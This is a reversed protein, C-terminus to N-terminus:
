PRRRHAAARSARSRRHAASRSRPRPACARRAGPRPSAAAPRPRASRSPPCAGAAARAARRRALAATRVVARGEHGVLPMVDQVARDPGLGIQALEGGGDLRDRAHDLVAEEELVGVDDSSPAGSPESSRSTLGHVARPASRRHAPRDAGQHRARARSSRRVGPVGDVDDFTAAVAFSANGERLGLDSGVALSRVEPLRRARARRAGHRDARGSRGPRRAQSRLHRCSAAHPSRLLRQRAPADRRVLSPRFRDERRRRIPKSTRNALFRVRERM